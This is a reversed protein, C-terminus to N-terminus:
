MTVEGGGGGGGGWSGPTRCNIYGSSGRVYSYNEFYNIVVYGFKCSGCIADARNVHPLVM